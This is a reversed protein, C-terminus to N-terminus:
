VQSEDKEERTPEEKTVLGYKKLKDNLTSKPMRLVVATKRQNRGCEIWAKVIINKEANEIVSLSMDESPNRLYDERIKLWINAMSTIAKTLDQNM